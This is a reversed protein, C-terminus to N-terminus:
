RRHKKITYVVIGWILFDNDPTVKISPYQPNEPILWIMKEKKDIHIRKVTFEGDLFCVAVDGERPQLSKDIVLIDGDDIGADRMSSGKVRGLFTTAPHNILEKNLDIAKDFSGEAPSPFGAPIRERALPLPISSTADVPYIILSMKM